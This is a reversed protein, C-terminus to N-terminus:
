VAMCRVTQMWLEARGFVTLFSVDAADRGVGIVAMESPKAMGSPDVLHWAGDLWVEAVAHFDPPDVPPAYVSAMRAPVGGARALAILVHAYDRCVGRRQVFTDRASTDPGSSGPVYSFHEEIWDRLAAILAGGALGEFEAAVFAQFEDSPCYRSPMVFPTAEGTLTRPAAGPLTALDPDPRDVDVTATYTLELLGEARMWARTGLAADAPIRSFDEVPTTFLADKLVTQGSIRAVEIQLLLDSPADLRYSLKTEIEVTM